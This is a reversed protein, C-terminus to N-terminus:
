ATLKGRYGDFMKELAEEKGREAPPAIGNSAFYSNSKMDTSDLLEM